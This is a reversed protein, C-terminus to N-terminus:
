ATLPVIHRAPKARNKPTLAVLPRVDAVVGRRRRDILPESVAGCIVCRRTRLWLNGSDDQMDILHDEVMLGQCRECHM